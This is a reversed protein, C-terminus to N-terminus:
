GILGTLRHSLMLSIAVSNIEVKNSLSFRGLYCVLLEGFEKLPVDRFKSKFIKFM